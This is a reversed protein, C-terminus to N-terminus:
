TSTARPPRSRPRATPAATEFVTGTVTTVVGNARVVHTAGPRADPVLDNWLRGSQQDLVVDRVGNVRVRALVLETAPALTATSGDPFTLRARGDGTTRLPAGEDLRDGDTLPQWAGDHEREVGGAFVTLTSASAPTSGRSLVLVLAIVAVAAAPAAMTAFGMLGGRLGDFRPLSVQPLRSRSQQPTRALETM